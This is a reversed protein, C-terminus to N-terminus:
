QGSDVTIRVGFQLWEHTQQSAITINAFSQNGSSIDVNNYRGISLSSYPGIALAQTLRYDAGLQLNLPEWGRYSITGSGSNDSLTYGTSEYGAGVGVWPALVWDPWPKVLFEIGGHVSANGSCSTIGSVHCERAALGNGSKVLFPYGIQLYAGVFFREAFRYGLDFWFPIQGSFEASLPSAGTNMTAFQGMPVAYGARLAASFGDPPPSAAISTSTCFLTFVTGFLRPNFRQTM